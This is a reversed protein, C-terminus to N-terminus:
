DLKGGSKRFKEIENAHAMIRESESVLADKVALGCRSDSQRKSKERALEARKKCGKIVYESMPKLKMNTGYQANVNKMAQEIAEITTM